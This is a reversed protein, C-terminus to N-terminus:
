RVLIGQGPRWLALFQELHARRMAICGATPREDDHKLHLFIASGRAQARPWVNFDLVVCLDYARDRRWLREASAPFPHRVFRNYAPHFPADCWGDEAAIARVPLLAQPRRGRDARYLVCVPRLLGAPTAKDGERPFHAIGHGGIVAPWCRGAGTLLAYSRMRCLPRLVFAAASDARSSPRESTEVM